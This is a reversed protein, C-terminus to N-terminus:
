RKKNESVSCSLSLSSSSSPHSLVKWAQWERCRILLDSELFLAIPMLTDRMCVTSAKPIKEFSGVEM